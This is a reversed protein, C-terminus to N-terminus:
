FHLISLHFYLLSDKQGRTLWLRRSVVEFACTVCSFHIFWPRRPPETLCGVRRKPEPWSRVTWSNSGQMAGCQARHQCHPARKPNEKEREGQRETKKEERLIFLYVKKFFHIFQVGDLNFVGTSWRVGDAFHFLCGVSPSLINAPRINSIPSADLM